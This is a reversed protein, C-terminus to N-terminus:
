RRAVQENLWQAAAAPSRKDLDRDVMLNAARMTEVPIAGILPELSRRLVADATRNPSLLLIADYPPIRRLPDDLVLLSDAAIRGDSSFATIVDVTGDALAKYMFTSQFQRSDAFHLGYGDRVATWDPRALFEYDTGLRLNPAHRALDAISRIGLERAREARMAFAYANEFGLPGLMAIGHEDRLWASIEALMADREPQDDRQMAARWITGSYEVYVDIEGNALARLIVASGLSGSIRARKGQATLREDIAASLIYQESFNKAGIVYDVRAASAWPALSLALGLGLGACGAVIRRVSRRALGIEIVGLLQDAILALAAASVCGVLVSTWNETQLGSFIYNGLSTQGVPTALTAAGITWVAATRVGAMMVPGALPLEVMFLRQRETMGVGRAAEIVGPDLSLLGAVTNRIIPLMSYLTLAALAPWFGLASFRTGFAAESLASLALLVPYFLALLALSPITQVISAFGLLPWRLRPVRSAAIALPLSILLGLGLAAGSLRVHHGLYDPLLRLAAALEENM